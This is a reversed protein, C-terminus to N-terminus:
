FYLLLDQDFVRKQLLFSIQVIMIKIIKTVNKERM